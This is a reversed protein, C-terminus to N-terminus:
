EDGRPSDELEELWLAQITELIKENCSHGDQAEFDPLEEVLRRLEPFGISVPDIDPHADALEEAIMQVDLWHFTESM